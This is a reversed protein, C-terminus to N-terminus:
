EQDRAKRVEEHATEYWWDESAPVIHLGHRRLTAGDVRGDALAAKIAPKDPEQRMRVLEQYGTITLEEAVGSATRGRVLAVREPQQRFGVRGFLVKLSKRKGPLLDARSDEVVLRLAEARVTIKGQLRAIGRAFRHKVEDMEENLRTQLDELVLEDRGLLYLERDVGERGIVMQKAKKHPM